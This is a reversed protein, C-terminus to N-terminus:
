SKKTRESVKARHWGIKKELDRIIDEHYRVTWGVKKLAQKSLATSRRTNEDLQTQLVELSKAMGLAQTDCLTDWQATDGEVSQLWWTGGHMSNIEKVTFPLVKAEYSYEHVFGRPGEFGLGCGDCEVEVSEGNGLTVALVRNGYCVPCPVQIKEPHWRPLWYTKGIEFPTNMSM